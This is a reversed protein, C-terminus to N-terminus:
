SADLTVKKQQFEAAGIPSENREIWLAGDVMSESSHILKEFLDRKRLVSALTNRTMAEDVQSVCGKELRALCRREIDNWREVSRLHEEIKMGRIKAEEQTAMKKSMKEIERVTKTEVREYYPFPKLDTHPALMIEGDVRV